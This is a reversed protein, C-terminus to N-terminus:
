EHYRAGVLLSKDAGPKPTFKDIRQVPSQSFYISGQSDTTMDHPSELGGPIKEHTGWSYVYKGSPDHKGLLGGPTGELVWSNKQADVIITTPRGMVPFQRLFKGNEDFVQVRKNDRDAVWVERDPGITVGHVLNFQGPGTGKTGWAMLFKGNKDFKVVRSNDYGDAIFFTGDPLWAIDTPRGFHKSDNGAVNREGLTMVISKGDNTFELVQQSNRDIVWVHKEPDYPNIRIRHPWQIRDDWQAWSEIVKGTHDVVFVKHDKKADPFEPRWADGDYKVNPDQPKSTGGIGIFIRDPSQAEVTLPYIWRGAEVPKLWNNVYNYPGTDATVPKDAASAIALLCGALVTAIVLKRM